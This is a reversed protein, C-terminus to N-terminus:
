HPIHATDSQGFALPGNSWFGGFRKHMRLCFPIGWHSGNFALPMILLILDYKFYRDRRIDGRINAQWISIVEVCFGTDM